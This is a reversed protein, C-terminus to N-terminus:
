LRPQDPGLFHSRGKAKNVSKSKGIVRRFDVILQGYFDFLQAFIAAFGLYYEFNTQYIFCLLRRLLIM